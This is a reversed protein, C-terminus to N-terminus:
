SSCSCAKGADSMGRRRCTLSIDGIQLQTGVQFKGKIANLGEDVEDAGDIAVDLHPNINLDSLPL